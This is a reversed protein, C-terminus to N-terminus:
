VPGLPLPPNSQKVAQKSPPRNRILQRVYLPIDTTQLYHDFDNDIKETSFAWQKGADMFIAYVSCGRELAMACLLEEETPMYDKDMQKGLRYKFFVFALFVLALLLGYIM